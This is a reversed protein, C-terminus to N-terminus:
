SWGSEQPLIGHTAFHVFRFRRLDTALLDPKNAAAGIRLEVEDGGPFLSAIATVESATAPLRDLSSLGRTTTAGPPSRGAQGLSENTRRKSSAVALLEFRDDSASTIPDAIGLFSKQWQTQRQAVRSLALAAASPFYKTATGLFVFEGRSAKPSLVEFPILSLYDDPVVIISTAQLLRTARGSPFLTRFLEESAIPDFDDPRGGNLLAVAHDAQGIRILGQALSTSAQVFVLYNEDKIALSRAAQALDLAQNLNQDSEAALLWALYLKHGALWDYRNVEDIRLAEELSSRAEKQRGFYAQSRGLEGLVRSQLFLSKSKRAKELARQLLDIGAGPEEKVQEFVALAVLVDAQVALNSSSVGDELARVFMQRADELKGNAFFLGGLSDEILARDSILKRSTSLEQAKRLLSISRELSGCGSQQQTSEVLQRIEPDSVQLEPPVFKKGDKEDSAAFSVSFLTLLSLTFFGYSRSTPNSM